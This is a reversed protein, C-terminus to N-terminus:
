GNATEGLQSTASILGTLIYVFWTFVNGASLGCVVFGWLAIELAVAMRFDPVRSESSIRRARYLGFGLFLLFAASGLAGTESLAQIITNHTVLAGRTYLGKPAYLPWAVVSCAPGVGLLPYDFFMALGAKSTAIREQFSNDGSLNTFGQDRSWHRAAVAMGAVLLVAVAIKIGIGRQRWAFLGIVAVLGVLGGRSFTVFIAASYLLAIATLGLRAVLGSRLALYGALPVLIVLGYALDNPNAFIGVWATREEITRGQLYNRLVGALPVLGGIVMTWMVGRIRRETTACNVLFFYILVMKVLDAVAAAAHGPWLATLCSLAAACLFGILLGSEPWGWRFRARGSMIELALALLAGAGVLKAPHIVELAPFVIPVNLYLLFIFALLFLYSAVGRTRAATGSAFRIQSVDLTTAEAFQTLGSTGAM